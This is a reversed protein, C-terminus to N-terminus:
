AGAAPLWAARRVESRDLIEATQLDRGFGLEGTACFPCAVACGAQSSICLTNRERRDTGAPYHMLVSEIAVGDQLRHLAKETRGGDALVFESAAVTDWAFAASVAERIAASLTSVVDAGAVESRWVADLVQRARFAPEGRERFWAELQDVTQGSIGPRRAPDGALDLTPTSMQSPM